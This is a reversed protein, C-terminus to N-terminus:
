SVDSAGRRVVFPRNMAVYRMFELASPEEYLATIINSNLENYTELLTAIPDSTDSAPDM